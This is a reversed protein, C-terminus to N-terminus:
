MTEFDVFNNYKSGCRNCELTIWIWSFDNDIETRGIDYLEQIEPYEYKVNVVFHNYSCKPCVLMQSKDHVYAGGYQDYGDSGSDFVSIIKGCKKCFAEIMIKGTESYLHMKSFLGYKIEGEVRVEFEQSNCCTLIGEIIMNERGTKECVTRFYPQIKRPVLIVGGM